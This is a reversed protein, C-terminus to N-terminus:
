TGYGKERRLERVCCFRRRDVGDVMLKVVARVCCGVQALWQAPMCKGRLCQAMSRQRQMSLQEVTLAMIVHYPLFGTYPYWPARKNGGEHAGKNGGM